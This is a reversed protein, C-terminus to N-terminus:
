KIRIVIMIRNHQVDEVGTYRLTDCCVQTKIREIEKNLDKFINKDLDVVITGKEKIYRVNLYDDESSEYMRTLVNMIPQLDGVDYITSPAKFLDMIAEDIKTGLEVAEQITIEQSAPKKVGAAALKADAIANM